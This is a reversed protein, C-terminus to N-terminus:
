KKIIVRLKASRSRINKNIELAGPKVPEKTLLDVDNKDIFDLLAREEIGHFTIVALRGGKKLIKLSQPLASKFNMIEGNVAIRIGQFTKTACHIRRNRYSSPVSKEIIKVLDKTNKILREKREKIINEVIRDAYEEEGWKRIIYLLDKERYQNVVEKATLLINKNYRMDLPENRRFSFGRGSKEIHFSSFGLDFIIGSIPGFEKEEVIEELMTYSENCVILRERKKSELINYLNSDWELALVKGNPRNKELLALSHGGAGATCDVFNENKKPNLLHLVEQKLVPIHVRSKEKM